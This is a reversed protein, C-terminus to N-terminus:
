SSGGNSRRLVEERILPHVDYWDEGNTFYFVVHTDLARTLRHVTAPSRDTLPDGRTEAIGKLWPIEDAPLPLFTRRVASIAEDMVGTSIPLERARLICERVLRFLERFDGGSLQILRDVRWEADQDQTNLDDGFLAQLGDAQLRKGLVRRMVRVGDMDTPRDADNKWLRISPLLTVKGPLTFKLWPPATYITHLSPFELEGLSSAFVRDLSEIVEGANFSSGRMQELSDFIYVVEVQDGYAKKLAKVGEEVFQEVDSQRQGYGAALYKRLQERFSPDKQLSLKLDVDAGLAAMWTASSLKVEELEVKTKRLRHCIRTWYTEGLIGKGLERELADSFAGALVMLVEGVELPETPPLYELANAYLVCYKRKGGDLQRLLERRLRYLQTTKGTGRFGSFLQLSGKPSFEIGRRLPLIPDQTDFPPDEYIRTYRPDEPEVAELPETAIYVRKLLEEQQQTLPV